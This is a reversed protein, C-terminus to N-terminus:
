FNKRNKPNCEYKIKVGLGRGLGIVSNVLTMACMIGDHTISIGVSNARM